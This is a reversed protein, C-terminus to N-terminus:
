PEACYLRKELHHVRKKNVEKERRKRKKKKIRRGMREFGKKVCVGCLFLYCFLLFYFFLFFFFFFFITMGVDKAPNIIKRWPIKKKKRWVVSWFLGVHVLIFGWFVVLFSYFFLSEFDYVVFYERRTCLFSSDVGGGLLFLLM